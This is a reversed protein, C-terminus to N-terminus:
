SSDKISNEYINKADENKVEKWLKLYNEYAPSKLGLMWLAVLFLFSIISFSVIEWFTSSKCFRVSIFIGFIGVFFYLLAFARRSSATKIRKQRREWCTKSQETEHFVEIYTSIKTKSLGFLHSLFCAISIILLISSAVIAWSLENPKNLIWGLIAAIAVLSGSAVTFRRNQWEIIEKRLSEYEKEVM